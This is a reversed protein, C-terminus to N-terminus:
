SRSNPLTPCSLEAFCLSFSIITQSLFIFPCLNLTWRWQRDTIGFTIDSIKKSFDTKRPFRASVYMLTQRCSVTLRISNHLLSNCLGQSIHDLCIAPSNHVEGSKRNTTRRQRLTAEEQSGWHLCGLMTKLMRKQHRGQKEWRRQVRKKRPWLWQIPLWFTKTSLWEFEFRWWITLLPKGPDTHRSPTYANKDSQLDVLQNSLSDLCIPHAIDLYQFWMKLRTNTCFWFVIM